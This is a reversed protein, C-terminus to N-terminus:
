KKKKICHNVLKKKKLNKKCVIVKLIENNLIATIYTPLTEFTHRRAWSILPWRVLVHAVM